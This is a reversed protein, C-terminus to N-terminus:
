SSEKVMGNEDVFLATIQTRRKAVTPLREWLSRFQPMDPLAISYKTNEEAMRQLTEGLVGLFYNVRMQNRSGMGKVEIIWREHNRRADVDIGRTKGWAITFQWGERTLWAELATNLADEILRPHVPTKLRLM